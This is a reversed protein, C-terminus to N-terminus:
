WVFFPKPSLTSTELSYVQVIRRPALVVILIRLTFASHIFIGKFM